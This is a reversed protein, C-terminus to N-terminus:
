NSNSCSSSPTRTALPPYRNHRNWVVQTGSHRPVGLLLDQIAARRPIGPQPGRPAFGARARPHVVAQRAAVRVLRRAPAPRELLHQRVDSRLYRQGINIIKNRAPNYQLYANSQLTKHTDRDVMANANVFWNRQLRAVGEAVWDSSRDTTTGAPLNVRRDAFYYIRGISGRLREAGDDGDLVRSTVALTVQNADGIRDGGDLRQDRFLGPFSIGPAGSDFNPLHDQPEHPARLYYLRPELTQTYGREGWTFDRDFYLGSDVSLFPLTVSPSTDSTGSLNYGIHRLGVKPTLFGYSRIM